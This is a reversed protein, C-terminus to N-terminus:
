ASISYNNDGVYISLVDDFEIGVMDCLKILEEELSSLDRNGNLGNRIRGGVVDIRRLINQKDRPLSQFTNM